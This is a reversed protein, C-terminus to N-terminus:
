RRAEEQWLKSKKVGKRFLWLMVHYTSAQKAHMARISPPLQHWADGLAQQYLSYEATAKSTERMGTVIARHAFLKEYGALDIEDVAARAGPVVGHGRLVRRVIGEIAMSPILPGDSGQALLHWSRALAEGEATRGEVKVFMGGRHEGWRFTNIARYFLPALFLLSPLLRLRVLWALANLMRHLIEPVPGAGMWVSQVEPWLKPLIELDPVDVLSFRRNHLPLRGPPAITARMTEVLALGKAPLGNRRLDVPQGAYGAIAKIVNLGVGAYPSPAIGGTISDVQAMGIALHRVVAATLVPFSSVGSLIYIGKTKAEADFQGIGAVFASSDALDLYNVGLALAARVVRYRNEGYDQFPGTADVVIDATLGRMQELVDADRNFPTAVLEATATMGACFAQAKAQSRGGVILTLRPEDSLLQVLRGGFVGYGGIILLRLQRPSM